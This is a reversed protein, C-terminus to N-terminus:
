IGYFVNKPCNKTWLKKRRWVVGTLKTDSSTFNLLSNSFNQWFTAPRHVTEGVCFNFLGNEFQFNRPNFYRPNIRFWILVGLKAYLFSWRLLVYVNPSKSFFFCGRMHGCGVSNWFRLSIKLISNGAFQVFVKIDGSDAHSVSDAGVKQYIFIPWLFFNHRNMIGFNLRSM